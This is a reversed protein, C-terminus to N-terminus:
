PQSNDSVEWQGGAKAAINQLLSDIQNEWALDADKDIEIGVDGVVSQESKSSVSKGKTAGNSTGTFQKNVYVKRKILDTVSVQYITKNICAYGERIIPPSIRLEYVKDPILIRAEIPYYDFLLGNQVVFTDKTYVLNPKTYKPPKSQAFQIM